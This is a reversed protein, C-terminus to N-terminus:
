IIWASVEVNKKNIASIEFFSMQPRQAFENGEGFSGQKNNTDKKNGILIKYSFPYNTLIDDFSKM